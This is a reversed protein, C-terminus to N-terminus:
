KPVGSYLRHQKIYSAVAPPILRTGLRGRSLEERIDQSSVEPFPTELGLVRNEEAFGRRGYFRIEALQQLEEFDKWNHRQSYNDSGLALTFSINPFESKLHRVLDITYGEGGARSEDDRIKVKPAFKGFAAMCMALRHQFPAMEKGFPHRYAPLIWVEDFGPDEALAKCFATHGKHPPDFAGGFLAVRAGSSSRKAM